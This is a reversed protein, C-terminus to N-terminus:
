RLNVDHNDHDPGYVRWRHFKSFHSGGHLSLTDNTNMVPGSSKHGKAFEFM